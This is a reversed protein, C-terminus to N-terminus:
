DKTRSFYIVGNMIQENSGYTRLGTSVQNSRFRIHVECALQGLYIKVGNRELKNLPDFSCDM